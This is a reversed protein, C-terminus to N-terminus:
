LGSGGDIRSLLRPDIMTARPVGFQHEIEVAREVPAYGRSLWISIAQQTVGLAQALKVQGGATNIAQQIGTVEEMM